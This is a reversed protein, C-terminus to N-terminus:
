KGRKPWRQTTSEKETYDFKIKFEDLSTKLEPLFKKLELVKRQNKKRTEIEENIMESQKHMTKRIENLPIDIRDKLGNFIRKITFKLENEPLEYIDVEKPFYPSKIEGKFTNHDGTEKYTM